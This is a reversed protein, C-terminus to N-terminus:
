SVYYSDFCKHLKCLWSDWVHNGIKNYTHLNIHACILYLKVSGERVGIRVVENTGSATEAIGRWDFNHACVCLKQDRKFLAYYFTTDHSQKFCEQACDLQSRCSFSGSFYLDEDAVNIIMDSPSATMDYQCVCIHFMSLFNYVYVAENWDM